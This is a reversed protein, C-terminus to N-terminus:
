ARARTPPARRLPRPHWTAAVVATVVGLMLGGLWRDHAAEWTPGGLSVLLKLGDPLLTVAFVVVLFAPAALLGVVGRPARRWIVSAVAAAAVLVAAAELTLDGAPLAVSADGAAALGTALTASWWATAAFALATARAALPLWAPAPATATTPRAPDDFVFGVGLGACLAALRLLIVVLSPASSGGIVAPLGVMAYGVVMAALVPSWLGARVAPVAIAALMPLRRVAGPRVRADTTM